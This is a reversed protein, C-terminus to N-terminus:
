PAGGTLSYGLLQAMRSRAWVRFEPSDVDVRRRNWMRIVTGDVTRIDSAPIDCREVAYREALEPLWVAVYTDLRHGMEAAMEAARRCADGLASFAPGLADTLTTIVQQMFPVVVDAVATVTDRIMDGLEVVADDLSPPPGPVNGPGDSNSTM